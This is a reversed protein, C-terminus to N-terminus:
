LLYAEASTVLELGSLWFYLQESAVAEKLNAFIQTAIGHHGYRAASRAIRYKAWGDVKSAALTIASKCESSWEFGSAVMQFLLTCLMVQAIFIFIM